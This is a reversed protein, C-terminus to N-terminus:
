VIYSALDLTLALVRYGCCFGTIFFHIDTLKLLFTVFPGGLSTSQVYM